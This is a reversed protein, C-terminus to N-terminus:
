DFMESNFNLLSEVRSIVRQVTTYDIILKKYDEADGQLKYHSELLAKADNYSTCTKQTGKTLREHTKKMSYFFPPLVHLVSPDQEIAENGIEEHNKFTKLAGSLLFPHTKVIMKAFQVTTSNYDVIYSLSTHDEIFATNIVEGHYRYCEPGYRLLHPYKTVLNIADELNNVPLWQFYPILPKICKLCLIRSALNKFTSIIM